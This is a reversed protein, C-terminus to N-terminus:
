LFFEQTLMIQIGDGRSTRLSFFFWFKWSVSHSIDASTTWSLNMREETRLPDLSSGKSSGLAISSVHEISYDSQTFNKPWVHTHHTPSFFFFFCIFYTSGFPFVQRGFSSKYKGLCFLFFTIVTIHLQLSSHCTRSQFSTNQTHAHVMISLIASLPLKSSKKSKQPTHAEKLIGRRHNLQIM